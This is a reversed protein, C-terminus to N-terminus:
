YQLYSHSYFECLQESRNRMFDSELNILGQIQVLELKEHFLSEKKKEKGKSFCLRAELKMASISLLRGTSSGLFDCVLNEVSSCLSVCM